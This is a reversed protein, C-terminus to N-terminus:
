REWTWQTVPRAPRWGTFTGLPEATEVSIRTLEGGHERCAAVLVQESELTVAHAVLRGQPRLARLCTLLLGEATAGGGVFVADPAALSALAGPARGTVVQLGPVGLGSANRAIRASRETDAEVATATCTPHARMWEIAISGAGAGVDWLHEGPAPALRALAAARLDRKTLQGDSEFADDPLGSSWGTTRPGTLELALVHLEPIEAPPRDVWGQASTELRSEGSGGLEGLVTMTSSGYGSGVLLRAVQGPTTADGSLVLLRRRPALERLVLAPDRGVLSVLGCGEASWGLRARALAVSSVAPEVAVVDAGLLAVLTTGIGSVLPDGSALAVVPGPPLSDLLAPLGDKLPSPWPERRQGDVPPVLELHRRGGLLAEAALVTERLREPVGAWGDAGIGVVTIQPHSPGDASPSTGPMLGSAITVGCARPAGVVWGDSVTTGAPPSFRPLRHSEPVPGSRHISGESWALSEVLGFVPGAGSWEMIAFRAPAECAV